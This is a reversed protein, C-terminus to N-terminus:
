LTKSLTLMDTIPQRMFSNDTTNTLNPLLSPSYMQTKILRDSVDTFIFSPKNKYKLKDM